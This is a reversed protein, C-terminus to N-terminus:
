LIVEWTFQPGDAYVQKIISWIYEISNLDPYAALWVVLREGLLRLIHPQVQCLM